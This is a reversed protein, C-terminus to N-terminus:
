SGQPEPPRSQILVRQARDDCPQTSAALELSRAALEPQGARQLLLARWRELEPARGPVLADCDARAAELLELARAAAQADPDRWAIMLAQMLAVRAHREDCWRADQLLREAQDWQQSRAEVEARAALLPARRRKDAKMPEVRAYWARAQVLDECRLLVELGLWGVEVAEPGALAQAGPGSLLGRAQELRGLALLARLAAARHITCERRGRLWFNPVVRASAYALANERQGSAVLRAGLTVRAYFYLLLLLAPIYAYLVGMRTVHQSLPDELGLRAAVLVLVFYALSTLLAAGGLLRVLTPSSM